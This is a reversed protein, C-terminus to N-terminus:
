ARCMSEITNAADAFMQRIQDGVDKIQQTAGSAMAMLKDVLAKMIKVFAQILAQAADMAGKLRTMQADIINKYASQFAENVGQITSTINVLENMQNLMKSQSEEVEKEAAQLDKKAKEVNKAVEEVRTQADKVEKALIEITEADENGKEAISLANKADKLCNNAIARDKNANEVAEEARGVKDADKLEGITTDCQDIIKQLFDQIKGSTTKSAQATTQPAVDSGAGAQTSQAAQDAARNTARAAAEEVSEAGQRAASASFTVGMQEAMESVRTALNASARVVEMVIEVITKVVQVALLEISAAFAAGFTVVAIAIAAVIQVAMTVKEAASESMGLAQCFDKVSTGNGLLIDVLLAGPAAVALIAMASIQAWHSVFNGFKGGIANGIQQMTKMTEDIINVSEAIGVVGRQGAKVAETIAKAAMGVVLLVGLPGLFMILLWAIIMQILVGLPGLAAMKKEQAMVKQLQIHQQKLRGVEADNQIKNTITALNADTIAVQYLMESMKVLVGNVAKLYSMLQSKLTPPLTTTGNADGTSMSTLLKSASGVWEQRQSIYTRTFNLNPNTNTAAKTLMETDPKWTSSVGYSAGIKATAAAQINDFITKLEEPLAAEADPSILAAKLESKQEATLNLSPNALQKNFEAGYAGNM